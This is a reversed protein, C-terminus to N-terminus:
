DSNSRQSLRLVEACILSIAIADGACFVHQLTALLQTQSIGELLKALASVRQASLRQTFKELVQIWVESTPALIAAWVTSTVDTVERQYVYNKHM